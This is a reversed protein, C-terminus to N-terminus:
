FRSERIFYYQTNYQLKAMNSHPETHSHGTDTDYHQTIISISPMALTILSVIMIRLTTVNLTTVSLM